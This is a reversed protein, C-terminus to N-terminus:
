NEKTKLSEKYLLRLKDKARALIVRSHNKSIHLMVAIEEHKFGEIEYMNFVIRQLQPLEDLLSLIHHVNMKNLVTIHDTHSIDENLEDTYNQNKDIRLFDIATRSTIKSIWGKFLKLLIEKDDPIIFTHLNKFIKIFSDNVLEEAVGYETGIYRVTISMLHGYFSKYMMEKAKDDDNICRIIM